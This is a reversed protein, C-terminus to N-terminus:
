LYYVKSPAGSETALVTASKVAIASTTSVLDLSRLKAPAYLLDGLSIEFNGARFKVKSASPVAQPRRKKVVNKQAVRRITKAKDQVIQAVVVDKFKCLDCNDCSNISSFSSVFSKYRNQNKAQKNANTNKVTDVCKRKRTNYEHKNYNYNYSLKQKQRKELQLMHQQATYKLCDLNLESAFAKRKRSEATTKPRKEFSQVTEIRSIQLQCHLKATTRQKKGAVKALHHQKKAKNRITHTPHYKLPDHCSMKPTSAIPQQAVRTPTSTSALDAIFTLSQPQRRLCRPLPPLNELKVVPSFKLSKPKSLQYMSDNEGDEHMLYSSSPPQPAFPKSAKFLSSCVNTQATLKQYTRKISVPTAQTILTNVFKM